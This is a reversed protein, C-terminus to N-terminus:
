LAVKDHEKEESLITQLEKIAGYNNTIREGNRETQRRVAKLDSQILMSQGQLDHIDDRVDTLGEKLNHVESYLNLIDKRIPTLKEEFKQELKEELKQELKQELKEDMMISIADLTEQDIM